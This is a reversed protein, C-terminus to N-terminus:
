KKGLELRTLGGRVRLGLILKSVSTGCDFKAVVCVGMGHDKIRGLM